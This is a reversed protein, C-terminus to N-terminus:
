YFTDVNQMQLFIFNVCKWFYRIATTKCIGMLLSLLEMNLNHRPRLLTIFMQESFLLMYSEKQVSLYKELYSCLLEFNAYTVEVLFMCKREKDKLSSITLSSYALKFKLSDIQQLLEKEGRLNYIEDHLIQVDEAMPEEQEDVTDTDESDSATDTCTGFNTVEESTDDETYCM